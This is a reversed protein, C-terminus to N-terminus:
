ASRLVCRGNWLWRAGNGGPVPEVFPLHERAPRAFLVGRAPVLVARAPEGRRAGHEDREWAEAHLGSRTAEIAIVRAAQEYAGSVDSASGESPRRVQSEFLEALHVGFM